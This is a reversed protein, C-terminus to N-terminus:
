SDIQEIHSILKNSTEILIDLEKDPIEIIISEPIINFWNHGGTWNNFLNYIIWYLKDDDPEKNYKVNNELLPIGFIKIIEIGIWKDKIKTWLEVDFVLQILDFRFPADEHYNNTNVMSINNVFRTKAISM